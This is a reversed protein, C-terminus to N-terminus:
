LVAGLTRLVTDLHRTDWVPHRDRLYGAVGLSADSGEAARAYIAVRAAFLHRHTTPTREPATTLTM